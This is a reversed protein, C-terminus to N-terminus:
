RPVPLRGAHPAPAPTADTPTARITLRALADSMAVGIAAVTAALAMVQLDQKGM